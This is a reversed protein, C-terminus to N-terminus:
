TLMVNFTQKGRLQSVCCFKESSNLEPVEALLGWKVIPLVLGIYFRTPQKIWDFIHKKSSFVLPLSGTIGGELQRISGWQQM